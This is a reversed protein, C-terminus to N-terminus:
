CWPASLIRVCTFHPTGRRMWRAWVQAAAAGPRVLKVDGGQNVLWCLLVAHGYSAAAHLASYGTQDQDNVGCEGQGILQEIRELDGDGAATWLNSRERM